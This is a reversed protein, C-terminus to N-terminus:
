AAASQDRLFRYVVDRADLWQGSRSDRRFPNAQDYDYVLTSHQRGQLEIVKPKASPDIAACAEFSQELASIQDARCIWDGEFRLVLAPGRAKGQRIGQLAEASYSASPQALVPTLQPNDLMLSLVLNGTLCMGIVGVRCSQKHQQQYRCLEEAALSRIAATIATDTGHWLKRLESQLCLRVIAGIANCDGAKGFLLPLCVRFGRQVFYDGLAMTQRSLGPLEHLIILPPGEGHVLYTLDGHSHQQFGHDKDLSHM